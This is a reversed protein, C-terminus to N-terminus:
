VKVQEEYLEVTKTNMTNFSKRQYKVYIQEFYSKKESMKRCWLNEKYNEPM